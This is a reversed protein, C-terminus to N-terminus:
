KYPNFKVRLETETNNSEPVNQTEHTDDKAVIPEPMIMQNFNGTDSGLTSEIDSKFGALLSDLVDSASSVQNKNEKM